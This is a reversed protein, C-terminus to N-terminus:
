VDLTRFLDDITEARRILRPTGDAQLLVEASRLKGNYNFGMAHGHAGTDHIVLLDGPALVPLERDVAFKDNNECLSGVVDCVETPRDECGLATLHHYADYMGPRMLNAMTADVGIYTKYTEKRHRVRTLLYGHPGTVIRGNEAVVSLPALGAEAALQTYVSGIGKAIAAINLPAEGPRYSVGFGGGLNIFQFSIGVTESIDRVLELLMRATEVFAADAVENSVVMTHLGFRHCGLEKMRAYATFLQDRTMGFKADAPNGIIFDNSEGFRREPGPNYRCSTFAPMHGLHEQCYDIHSVDDFNVVAGLADAKEFEQWPTDNSTFMIRPLGNPLPQLHAGLQECLLLEPLSSCDFGMGESMLIKMIEPNPLAKVAFYNHFGPVGHEALTGTLSRAFARIGNEDYVHVPSPFRSCIAEAQERNFPLPKDM